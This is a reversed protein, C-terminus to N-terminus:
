AGIEAERDLRGDDLSLCVALASPAMLTGNDHIHNHAAQRNLPKWVHLRSASSHPLGLAETSPFSAAPLSGARAMHTGQNLVLVHM